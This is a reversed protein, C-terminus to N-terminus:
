RKMLQYYKKTRRLFQIALFFFGLAITGLIPAKPFELLTPFYLNRRYHDLTSVMGYFSLISCLISGLVSTIFKLFYQIKLSLHAVIIDMEVHGEERLVRGAGFMAIVLMLYEGIEGAWQVPRNFFNRLIVDLCVTVIIFTLSCGALFFLFNLIQDFLNTSKKVTKM